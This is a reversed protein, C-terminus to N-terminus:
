AAMDVGGDREPHQQGSLQRQNARDSVYRRLRQSGNGANCQNFSEHPVSVVAVAASGIDDGGPEAFAGGKAGLDDASKQQHVSYEGGSVWFSVGSVGMNRYGKWMRRM